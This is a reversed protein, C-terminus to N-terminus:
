KATSVFAATRVEYLLYAAINSVFVNYKHADYNAYRILFKHFCRLM